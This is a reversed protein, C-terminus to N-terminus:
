FMFICCMIFSVTFLVGFVSLIILYINEGLETKFHIPASSDALCVMIFSISGSILFTFAVVIEFITM